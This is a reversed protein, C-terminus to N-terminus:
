RSKKPTRNDAPIAVFKAIEAAIRAAAAEGDRNMVTVMELCQSGEVSTRLFTKCGDCFVRRFAIREKGCLRCPRNTWHGELNARARKKAALTKGNPRQLAALYAAEAANRLHLPSRLWHEICLFAGGGPTPRGCTPVKCLM